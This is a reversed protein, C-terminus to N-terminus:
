RVGCGQEYQNKLAAIIAAPQGMSTARQWAAYYKACCEAHLQRLRTVVAPSQGMAFARQWSVNLAACPSLRAAPPTVMANHAVTAPPPPPPAAPVPLRGRRKIGTQTPMRDEAEPVIQFVFSRPIVIPGIPRPFEQVGGDPAEFAIAYTLVDRDTAGLIRLRLTSFKPMALAAFENRANKSIALAPHFDDQLKFFTVAM